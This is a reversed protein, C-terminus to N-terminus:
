ADTSLKNENEEKGLIKQMKKAQKLSM